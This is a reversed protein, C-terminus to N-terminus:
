FSCCGFCYTTHRALRKAACLHSIRCENALATLDKTMMGTHSAIPRVVSMETVLSMLKAYFETPVLYGGTTGTQTSMATKQTPGEWECFRSGMEELLAANKHRVALLFQGFTKKTDGSGGDGFIAPVANKRSKTQAAAFQKLAADITQNLTDTLSALMGEMSKQLLPALPDGQVAEAIGADILTKGDSEAVDIRAGPTQGQFPKKLQVFM